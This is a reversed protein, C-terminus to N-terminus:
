HRCTVRNKTARVQADRGHVCGCPSGTKQVRQWSLVRWASSKRVLLVKASIQGDPITGASYRLEGSAREQGDDDSMEADHTPSQGARVTHRTMTVGDHSGLNAITKGRCLFSVHMPSTRVTHIVGALCSICAASVHLTFMPRLVSVNGFRFDHDCLTPYDDNAVPQPIGM